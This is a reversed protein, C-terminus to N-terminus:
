IFKQKRKRYVLRAVCGLIAALSAFDFLRFWGVGAYRASLSGSEGTPYVRVLGAPSRSNELPAGGAGTVVYGPYWVLPLDLYSGPAATYDFSLALGRKQYGSIELATDDSKIDNGWAVLMVDDSGQYLYQGDYTHNINPSSTLTHM